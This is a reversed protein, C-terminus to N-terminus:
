GVQSAEQNAGCSGIGGSQCNPHRVQEGVSLAADWHHMLQSVQGTEFVHHHPQVQVSEAQQCSLWDRLAAAFPALHCEELDDFNIHWMGSGLVDDLRL